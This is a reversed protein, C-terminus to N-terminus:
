PGLPMLFLFALIGTHFSTGTWIFSCHRSLTWPICITARSSIEFCPLFRTFIDFSLHLDVASKPLFRVKLCLCVSHNQFTLYPPYHFLAVFESVFQYGGCFRNELNIPALWLHGTTELPTKDSTVSGLSFGMLTSAAECPSLSASPWPSITQVISTLVTIGEVQAHFASISVLYMWLLFHSRGQDYLTLLFDFIDCLSSDDITQVTQVASNEFFWGMKGCLFALYFTDLCQPPRTTYLSVSEPLWFGLLWSWLAWMWAVPNLSPLITCLQTSRSTSIFTTHFLCFLWFDCKVVM